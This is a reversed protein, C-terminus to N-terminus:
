NSEDKRVNLRDVLIVDISSVKYRFESNSDMLDNITRISHLVTAHDKNGVEVGIRALSWAPRKYKNIFYMALQRATVLHRIRSRGEAQIETLGEHRYVVMKIDNMTYHPCDPHYNRLLEEAIIMHPHRYNIGKCYDFLTQLVVLPASNM